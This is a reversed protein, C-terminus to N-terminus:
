RRPDPGTTPAATRLPQSTASIGEINIEGEDGGEFLGHPLDYDSRRLLGRADFSCTDRAGPGSPCSWRNVALAFDHTQGHLSLQGRVVAVGAADFEIAKSRYVIQPFQEVDFWAPSLLRANWRPSECKLSAARITVDVRGQAADDGASGARRGPVLEGNLEDFRASVWPVGFLRVNLSVHTNASDLRYSEAGSVPWAAFLLVLAM